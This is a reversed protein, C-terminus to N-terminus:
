SIKHCVLACWDERTRTEVINFHPEIASLVEPLRNSIIGSLILTSRTFDQLFASMAVIVDATINAVVIDYCGVSRRFEEDTIANGCKVLYARGIVDNKMLTDETIRVANECVDVATLRKAGLLLAAASLIGSGCGVDLVDDAPTVYTELLELCMRTTAHQGTGFASAPDIEIVLRGDRNDYVEWSPKIVLREGVTLPKFHQKWNNEWDQEAVTDTTHALGNADAFRRIMSVVTRGQENAPVYVTVAPASEPRTDPELGPAPTPIMDEFVDGSFEFGEAGLDTLRSTLLDLESETMNPTSIIIKTFSM